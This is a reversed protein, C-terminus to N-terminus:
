MKADMVTVDAIWRFTEELDYVLWQSTQYDALEHLVAVSPELGVV